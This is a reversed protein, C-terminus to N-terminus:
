GPPEELPLTLGERRALHDLTAELGAIQAEIRTAEARLAGLKAEVLARVPGPSPCGEVPLLAIVARIEPLSFGQERCHAILRLREVHHPGLRRYSGRRPVEGLLGEAEYHRIAKVSVGSAAAAEGIRM